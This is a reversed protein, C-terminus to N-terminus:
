PQCVATEVVARLLAECQALQALEVFENATHAQAIEGPGCVVSPVGAAQFLGAETAYAVKRVQHDRTLARMLQTLAAAEAAEFAPATATQEIVLGADPHEARMQPLLVEDAHRRIREDIAEANVGPLNRFEFTFECHAPITNVAIGGAITGTQATSCGIDFAEDYPGRARYEDALDRIFCILRAAYEIANVGRPALSSHAARGRVCCRYANIGKHAVVPRMGTPEGVICGSPRIGRDHLDALMVPAGLCGLEEDFSLAYHVPDRLRLSQLWPLLALATGIFGKMDCTGRGYLRGDRIEPRFPDSDWAQGDV